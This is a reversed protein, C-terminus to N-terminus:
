LPAAFFEASAFTGAEGTVQFFVRGPALNPIQLADFDEIGTIAVGQAWNGNAEDFVWPVINLNPTAVPTTFQIYFRVGNSRDGQENKDPIEFIRAAAPTAANPSAEPAGGTTYVGASKFSLPM